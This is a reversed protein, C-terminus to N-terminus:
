REKGTIAFLRYIFAIVISFLMAFTLILAWVHRGFSLYVSTINHDKRNIDREADIGPHM